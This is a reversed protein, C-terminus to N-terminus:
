EPAEDDAQLDFRSNWFAPQGSLYQGTRIYSIPYGPARVLAVCKPAPPEPAPADPDPDNPDPDTADPDNTGPEDADAVNADAANAAAANTDPANADPAPPAEDLIVGYDPFAFDRNEFKFLTREPPLDGTDVPYIHLFFRPETDAATCPVRLYGLNTGDFYLDFPARAVPDGWAGGRMARYAARYPNAPPRYSRNVRFLAGDDLEAMPELTPRSRLEALGYEYGGQGAEEFWAIWTGEPAEELWQRFPISVEGSGPGGPRFRGGVSLEVPLYRIFRSHDFHLYLLIPLNTFVPGVTERGRLARITESDAWPPAAFGRHHNGVSSNAERIAQAHLSSQGVTWLGLATAVAVGFRGPGRAPAPRGKREFLFLRDLALVAALVLPAYLPVVFRPEVGHATLGAAMAAMLVAGYVLAFTLLTRLGQRNARSPATGAGGNGGRREGDSRGARRRAENRRSLVAAAVALPVALAAVEVFAGGAFLDTRLWRVLVGGIEAVAGPLSTPTLDEQLERRGFPHGVLLTNRLIWGAMPLGAALSLAAVRKGREVWSGRSSLLLLGVAAVLGVGLYRTQWALASFVIAGVLSRRRGETLFDATNVLALTTLLVFVSESMAWSSVEVLPLSVALAVAGWAALFRSGALRRLYNGAVFVTAGFVLANLAGALEVPDLLGLGAVALLLPYLPPGHAYAGWDFTLFGNGDLLHRAVAIYAISDYALAAGYRIGRALVLATGLAAAGLLVFTLAEPRFRLRRRRRVPVM